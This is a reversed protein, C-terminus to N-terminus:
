NVHSFLILFNDLVFLILIIKSLEFTMWLLEINMSDMNTELDKNNITDFDANTIAKDTNGGINTFYILLLSIFSGM